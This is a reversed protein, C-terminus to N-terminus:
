SSSVPSSIAPQEPLPSHQQHMSSLHAEAPQSQKQEIRDLSAIKKVM